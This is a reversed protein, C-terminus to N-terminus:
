ESKKELEDRIALYVKYILRCDDLARHKQKEEIGYHQAIKILKRSEIQNSSIQAYMQMTDYSQNPLREKGERELARNLFELDFGINHGILISENVFQCFEQLACSLPMGKERVLQNTIGTLKEIFKPINKQLNVLLSIEDIICDHEVKLAGIEIIDNLSANLGTTEIDVVIFNKPFQKKAATNKGVSHNRKRKVMLRKSAKSFGLRKDSIIENQVVSPKRVLKLGEFDVIENESNHLKFEMHQENNSSYVMTARGNKINKVIREWLFDRVRASVRGVYVGTSIELLWKTLDGRLALPCDTLTVVIM